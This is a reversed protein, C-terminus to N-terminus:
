PWDQAQGHRLRRFQDAVVSRGELNVYAIAYPGTAIQADPQFIYITAARKEEWVTKDLFLVFLDVASTIRSAARRSRKIMSRARTAAEWFPASEANGQPTPYKKPDDAMVRAGSHLNLRCPARASFDAPAMPSRPDCNRRGGRHAEGRLQRVAEIIKTMGGRNVPSGSCLGGGDTSFPLKGVGGILNGDARLKGGEGKECFGIDKRQM